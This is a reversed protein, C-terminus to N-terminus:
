CIPSHRTRPPSPPIAVATKAEAILELARYPAPAAGALKETLSHRVAASQPM